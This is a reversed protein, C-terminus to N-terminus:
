KDAPKDPGIVVVHTKMWDAIAQKQPDTKAGWKKQAQKTLAEHIKESTIPDKPEM